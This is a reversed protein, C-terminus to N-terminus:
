PEYYIVKGNKGTAREYKELQKSGARRASLTNPKLEVPRSPTIADLVIKKGTALDILNQPESQEGPKQKVKEAFDNRAERGRKRKINEGGPGEEAGGERGILLICAILHRTRPM